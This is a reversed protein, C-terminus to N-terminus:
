HSGHSTDVEGASVAITPLPTDRAIWHELEDAPYRYLSGVKVHHPGVGDLRWRRLTDQSIRLRDAVEAPTLLHGLTQENM